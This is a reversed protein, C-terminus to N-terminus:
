GKLKLAKLLRKELNPRAFQEELALISNKYKNYAFEYDVKKIADVCVSVINTYIYNYIEDNNEADNIAEVIIPAIKYYHDIDSKSVFNDRFWRLITLEECNDDFKQMLHHMCSTTLYCGIDTTEKDGSTTDVISGKGTDSDWNIHVTRHNANDAPCSDYIDIHDKEHRDTSTRIEVGEDNVYHGYKDRGMTKWEKMM